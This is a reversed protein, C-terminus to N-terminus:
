SRAIIVQIRLDQGAITSGIQHIRVALYQGSTAAIATNADTKNTITNTIDSFTYTDTNKKVTSGNNLIDCIFAAGTADTGLIADIRQITGNNAILQEQITGTADVYPYKVYFNYIDFEKLIQWDTNVSGEAYVSIGNTTTITAGTLPPNNTTNSPNTTLRLYKNINYIGNNYTILSAVDPNLYPILPSYLGGTHQLYQVAQWVYQEAANVENSYIDSQLVIGNGIDSQTLSKVNASDEAWYKLIPNQALAM